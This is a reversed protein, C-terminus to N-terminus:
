LLSMRHRIESTWLFARSKRKRRPRTTPQSIPKTRSNVTSAAIALQCITVITPPMRRLRQPCFSQHRRHRFATPRVTIIITSIITRICMITITHSSSTTRVTQRQRRSTAKASDSNVAPLTPLTVLHPSDCPDALRQRRSPRMAVKACPPASCHVEAIIRSSHPLIVVKHIHKYDTFVTGLKAHWTACIIASMEVTTVVATETVQYYIM